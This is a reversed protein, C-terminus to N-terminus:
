WRLPSLPRPPPYQPNPGIRYLTGSLEAPLEGQVALDHIDGEMPWPEYYGRLFPQDPFPQKM